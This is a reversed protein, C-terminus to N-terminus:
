QPNYTHIVAKAPIIAACAPLITIHEILGQELERANYSQTLTLFDFVYPDKLTQQALDSQVALLTTNFNSVANGERHWLGSEIQHILVSRSWVHEITNRVYYLAESVSRCKSIIQLNHGWPVQVLQAVPQQGIVQEGTYFLFWQRIYKLNRESFGKIDPFESM